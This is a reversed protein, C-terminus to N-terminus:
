AGYDTFTCEQTDAQTDSRQHDGNEAERLANHNHRDESRERPEVMVIAPERTGAGPDHVSSGDYPPPSPQRPIHPITGDGSDLREDKRAHEYAPPDDVAM